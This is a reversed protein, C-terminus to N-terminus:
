SIELRLVCKALNIVYYPVFFSRHKLYQVVILEILFGGFTAVTIKEVLLIWITVTMM